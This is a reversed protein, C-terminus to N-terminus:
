LTAGEMALQLDMRDAQNDLDGVDRRNALHQATPEAPLEALRFSEPPLVRRYANALLQSQLRSCEYDRKVVFIQGRHGDM